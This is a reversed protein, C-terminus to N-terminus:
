SLTRSGGASRTPCRGGATKIVTELIQPAAPTALLLLLLTRRSPDAPPPRRLRRLVQHEGVADPDLVQDVRFLQARRRTEGTIREQLQTLTGRAQQIQEATPTCWSCGGPRGDGRAM